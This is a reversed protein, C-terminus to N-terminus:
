PLWQHRPVLKINGFNNLNYFVWGEHNEIEIDPITNGLQDIIDNKIDIVSKYLEFFEVYNTYQCRSLIKSKQNNSIEKSETIWQTFNDGLNTLQYSKAMFNTYRYIYERFSSVGDIPSLFDDIHNEIPLQHNIKIQKTNYYPNLVVLDNTNFQKFSRIPSQEKDLQGFRNFYAHGAVVLKSNLIRQGLDSHKAIKYITKNNPQLIITNNDQIYPSTCLSDAYVYGVFSSVTADNFIAYLNAFTKAFQRRQEFEENSKINGSKNVIFDYLQDPSTTQIKRNWNNHGAFTLPSSCHQRGWYIQLNGDWKLRLQEPHQNLFNLIRKIELLGSNGYFTLLDELHNFARGTKKM